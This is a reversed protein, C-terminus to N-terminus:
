PSQGPYRSSQAAAFSLLGALRAGPRRDDPTPGSTCSADRRDARAVCWGDVSAAGADALARALEELTRGTTTVDDVLAVRRGRVSPAVAFARALNDRRQEFTLGVQPRTDRRRAALGPALPLRLRRAVWRAIEASQNFGREGHRRPHLPVPVIVDVDRHLGLAAVREALLAGLVRGNALHGRYKLSRVLHDVPSAYAFAALSRRVPLDCAWPVSAALPLAAECAACLDLCPAQGRSGCLVCRPPLLLGGLWDLSRDVVTSM